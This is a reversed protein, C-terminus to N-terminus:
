PEAMEAVVLRCTELARAFAMRDGLVSSTVQAGEYVVHVHSAFTAGVLREFLRRMWEKEERIVVVATEHASLEAWANVFACGRPNAAAWDDAVGFLVGLADGQTGPAAESLATLVRDQWRSARRQLYAAVLGDKSGFRQYLTRKTTGATDVVLDVGVRTIGRHYFLEEAADLLRVGASTTDPPPMATLDTLDLM